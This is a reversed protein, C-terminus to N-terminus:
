LEHIAVIDEDNLNFRGEIVIRTTPDLDTVVPVGAVANHLGVFRVKGNDGMIFIGLGDRNVVLDAPIHPTSSRWTLRGASGSVATNDLFSFRAEFSRLRSDMQPLVTRLELPYRGNRTVLEFDESARLSQLDKEQINASVEINNIDLLRVLPQGKQMYDGVSALRKTVVADFPATVECREVATKAKDLTAKL